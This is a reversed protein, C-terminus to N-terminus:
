GNLRVREGYIRADDNAKVTVDGRTAEVDVTDGEVRVAGTARVSFRECAVSVERAATLEVSASAFRLVPGEPTFRVSLEVAGDPARVTIAEPENRDVSVTRGSRLQLPASNPAPAMVLSEIPALETTEVAASDADPQKM